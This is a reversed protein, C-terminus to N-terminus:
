RGLFNQNQKGPKLHKEPNINLAKFGDVLYGMVARYDIRLREEVYDFLLMDEAKAQAKIDKLFRNFAIGIALQEESDFGEKKLMKLTLGDADKPPSFKMQREYALMFGQFLRDEGAGLAVSQLLEKEEEEPNRSPETHTKEAENTKTTTGEGFFWGSCNQPNVSPKVVNQQNKLEKIETKLKELDENIERIQRNREKNEARHFVGEHVTPLRDVGQQELSEASILPINHKSLEKNCCVEWAKRWEILKEKTNWSRTKKAAIGLQDVKRTSLMVHVHPNGAKYHFDLDAAMGEKVFNDRIFRKALDINTQEDFEIPLSFEVERALQADKRKEAKELANWLTARDKFKSPSGDPLIIENYGVKEKRTFDHDCNLRDDHLKEGSRYAASRIASQGKGRSIIKANLHYIAM